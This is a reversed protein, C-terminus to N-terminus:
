FTKYCIVLDEEEGCYCLCPGGRWWSSSSRPAPTRGGEPSTPRWCTLLCCCCCGSTRRGSSPCRRQAAGTGRGETEGAARGPASRGRRRAEVCVTRSGPGPAGGAPRAAGTWVEAESDPRSGRPSCRTLERLFRSLTNMQDRGTGESFEGTTKDRSGTVDVWVLPRQVATVGAGAHIGADDEILNEQAGRQLSSPVSFVSFELLQGDGLSVCLVCLFCSFM